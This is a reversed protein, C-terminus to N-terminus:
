ITIRVVYNQDIDPIRTYTGVPSASETTMRDRILESSTSGFDPLVKKRHCLQM